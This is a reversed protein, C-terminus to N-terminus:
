GMLMSKYKKAQTIASPTPIRTKSNLRAVQKNVVRGIIPNINKSPTHRNGNASSEPNDSANNQSVSYGVLAGSIFFLLSCGIIGLVFIWKNM